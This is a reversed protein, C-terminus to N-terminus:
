SAARACARAAPASPHGEALRGLERNLTAEVESDPGVALVSATAEGPLTLEDGAASATM